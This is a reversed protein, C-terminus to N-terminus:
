GQAARMFAAMASECSQQIVEEPVAHAEFLANGRMLLDTLTRQLETLSEIHGGFKGPEDTPLAQTKCLLMLLLPIAGFSRTLFWLWHPWAQSLAKFYARVEPIEPLERPDDDYGEVMFALSERYRLVNQTTDTLVHLRELASVYNGSLIEERTIKLMILANETNQALGEADMYVVKITPM